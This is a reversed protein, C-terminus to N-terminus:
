TLYSENPVGSSLVHKKQQKQQQHQQQLYKRSMISVFKFLM